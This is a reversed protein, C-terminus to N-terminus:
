KVGSVSRYCSTLFVQFNYDAGASLLLGICSKAGRALAVHLPVTNHANRINVDVGSNLIIQMFIPFFFISSILGLLYTHM